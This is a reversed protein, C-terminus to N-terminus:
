FFQALLIHLNVGNATLHGLLGALQTVVHLAVQGVKYVMGVHLLTDVQGHLQAIAKGLALDVLYLQDIVVELTGTRLNQRMLREQGDVQLRFQIGVVLAVQRRVHHGLLRLVIQLLLTALLLHLLVLHCRQIIVEDHLGIHVGHQRLEDGLHTMQHEIGGQEVVNGRLM